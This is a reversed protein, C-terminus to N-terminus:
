WAKKHEELASKYAEFTAHRRKKQSDDLKPDKDVYAFYDPEVAAVFKESPATLSCKCGGVVALSVIAASVLMLKKM